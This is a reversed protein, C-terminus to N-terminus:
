PAEESDLPASTTPPELGKPGGLPLLITVVAGGGERDRAELKGGHLDAVAKCIALGLGAAGKRGTGRQFREMLLVPSDTGFGPGRDRVELSMGAPVSTAVVEIPGAASYRHANEFLNLLAQEVLLADMWILSVEAPLDVAVPRDGLFKRAERLSSGVVEEITNWEGELELGGGHLRTMQLLNALMRALRDAEAEIDRLLSIQRGHEIQAGSSLLATAAGKITGLPTRLDHSLSSLLANRTKEVETAVKAAQVEAALSVRGFSGTVQAVAADLFLRNEPRDLWAPDGLLAVVGVVADRTRLPLCLLERGDAGLPRGGTPEGKKLALTALENLLPLDLTSDVGALEMLRGGDPVLIAIECATNEALARRAVSGVEEYDRAEALRRTLAYLANNRWAREDAARARDRLRTSLGSIVLGVVAMVGFTLLYRGHSVAFTHIPPVFFFNFAVVAILATAAASPLSLWPAVAAVAALYIMVLDPEALWNGAVRAVLTALTVAILPGLIDILRFRKVPTVTRAMSSPALGIPLLHVVVGSAQRQIREGPSGQIVDRWGRRAPRGMVVHLAGVRAAYELVAEVVDRAAVTESTAGLREALRMHDSVSSGLRGGLRRDRPTDVHVVALDFGLARALTFGHEVLRGAEPHGSVCVLVRGTLKGGNPQCALDAVPMEAKM